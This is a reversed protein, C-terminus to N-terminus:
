VILEVFDSDANYFQGMTEKFCLGDLIGPVINEEDISPLVASIKQSLIRSSKLFDRLHLNVFEGAKFRFYSQISHKDRFITDIKGRLHSLITNKIRQINKSFM